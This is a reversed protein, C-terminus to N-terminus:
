APHGARDAEMLSLLRTPDFRGARFLTIVFADGCDPSRGIRKKIGDKSELTIVNGEVKSDYAVPTATTM